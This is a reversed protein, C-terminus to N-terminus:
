CVRTQPVALATGKWFVSVFLGSSRARIKRADRRRVTRYERQERAGPRVHRRWFQPFRVGVDWPKM